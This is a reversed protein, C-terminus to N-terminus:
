RKVTKIGSCALNRGAEVDTNHLVPVVVAAGGFPMITVFEPASVCRYQWTEFRDRSEVWVYVNNIHDPNRQINDHFAVTGRVTEFELWDDARVSGSALAIVAVGALLLKRM